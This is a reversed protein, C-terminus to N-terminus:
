MSALPPGRPAGAPQGKLALVWPDPQAPGLAPEMVAGRWSPPPPRTQCHMADATVICGDLALVALLQPLAPIENPKGAVRLQGLVLRQECAWASILHLPARGKQRDFSRRMTKGDIAVVGQVREGLAALYRAFCGEFAVPDLRRFVRLFTDHSPAGGPLRLFRRLLPEKSRGFLAMDVCTEAGCLTALLAIMVIEDLEHRQANGTRPDDLEAFCARFREM